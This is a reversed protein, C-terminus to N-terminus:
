RKVLEYHTQVLGSPYSQASILRCPLEKKIDFLAIGEGLLIPIVSLIIEDVLNLRLFQSITIGGDIWIHRVGEDHLKSALIVLDGSYLQADPIIKELTNSLVVLHKGSYPWKATEYATTAVHYTKRGLIVGDISNLFSNFGYDESGDEVCDLWNLSNDKRAIFGDISASIYISIKPRQTHMEREHLLIARILWLPM